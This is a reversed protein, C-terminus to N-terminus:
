GVPKNKLRVTFRIFETNEVPNSQKLGHLELLVRYLVESKAEM